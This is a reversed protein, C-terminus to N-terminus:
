RQRQQVFIKGEGTRHVRLNQDIYLIDFYTYPEVKPDKGRLRVLFDGIFAPPFQFEFDRLFPLPANPNQVRGQQFDLRVRSDSVPTMEISIDLRDFPLKKRDENSSLQIFNTCKGVDAEIKQGTSVTVGTAVADGFPEEKKNKETRAPAEADRANTYLLKWRGNLPAKSPPAGKYGKLGLTACATPNFLSLPGVLALVGEEDKKSAAEILQKKLAARQLPTTFPNLVNVTNTSTSPPAVPSLSHTAQLWFLTCFLVAVFRM